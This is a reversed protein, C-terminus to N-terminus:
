DTELVSYNLRPAGAVGAMGVGIVSRSYMVHKAIYKILKLGLGLDRLRFLTNWGEKGGTLPNALPLLHQYTGMPGSHCGASPLVCFSVSFSQPDMVM